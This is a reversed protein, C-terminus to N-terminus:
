ATIGWADLQQLAADVTSAVLPYAVVPRKIVLLSIGLARAAAAKTRYGGPEGSDKTVVCDIQWDRWLTENFAQSFPGQMALIHSRPLGLDIARQIFAPEPTLRTFWQRHAAGDASLFAELEKSGTALFIRRGREIARQAAHAASGCLEAGDLGLSSPREYRLYPIGLTQSLSILQESMQVAYPHTADVVARAQNTTFAQRRAEVGQRGAWVHVGSCHKAAVEGGYETATSVVVPGGRAAIANALANGDSTGSFVWVAHRPLQDRDM